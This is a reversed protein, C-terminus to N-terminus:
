WWRYHKFAKNDAIMKNLAYLVVYLKSRLLFFDVLEARCRHLAQRQQNHKNSMFYSWWRLLLKFQASRKIILYPVKFISRGRTILDIAYVPKFSHMLQSFM